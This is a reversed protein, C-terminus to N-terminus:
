SDPDPDPGRVLAELGAAGEHERSGAGQWDTV